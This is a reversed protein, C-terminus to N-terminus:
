GVKDANGNTTWTHSELTNAPLGQKELYPRAIEGKFVHKGLREINVAQPGSESKLIL